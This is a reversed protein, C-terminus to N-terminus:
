AHLAAAVREPRPGLFMGTAPPPVQAILAIAVLLLIRRLDPRPRPPSDAEAAALLDLAADRQARPVGIRMGGLAVMQHWATTCYYPISISAQIGHAQLHAVAVTTEAAGYGTAIWELADPERM